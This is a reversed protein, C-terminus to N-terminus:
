NPEQDSVGLGAAAVQEGEPVSIIGYALAGISLALLVGGAGPNAQIIFFYLAVVLVGIHLVFWKVLHLFRNYTNVHEQFRISASQSMPSDVIPDANNLETSSSMPALEPHTSGAM